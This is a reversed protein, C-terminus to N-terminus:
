SSPRLVLFTLGLLLLLALATGGGVLWLSDTTVDSVPQLRGANANPAMAVESSLEASPQEADASSDSDKPPAAGSHQQSGDGVRVPGGSAVVPDDADASQSSEDGQETEQPTPPIALSPFLDGVGLQTENGEESGFRAALLESAKEWNHKTLLDVGPNEDKVTCSCAGSIFQVDGILNDSRVGRGVFPPLARARGYVVFVMPQREFQEEHLDPEIALLTRVLWAENPDDRNVRLRGISPTDEKPSPEKPDAEGQEDPAAALPIDGKAVKEVTDKVAQEAQANAARAAEVEEGEGAESASLMLLVGMKGAGLQAALETRAPSAVLAELDKPSLEGAWLRAGQPSYVLYGPAQQGSEKWAQQIPTPLRKLAAEDRLDIDLVAVNASDDQYPLERLVDHAAARAEAPEEDFFFYVEYPAPQWRYMAYRYVPTDCAAVPTAQVCSVLGLVTATVFRYFSRM